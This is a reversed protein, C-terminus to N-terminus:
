EQQKDATGDRRSTKRRKREGAVEKSGRAKRARAIVGQIWRSIGGQDKKGGRISGRLSEFEDPHGRYLHVLEDFNLDCREYLELLFAGHTENAAQTLKEEAARLATVASKLRGPLDLPICPSPKRIAKLASELSKRQKQLDFVLKATSPPGQRRTYPQAGALLDAHWRLRRSVWWPELGAARLKQAMTKGAPQALPGGLWLQEWRLVM